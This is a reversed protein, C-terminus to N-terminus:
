QESGGPQVASVEFRPSGRHATGFAVEYDDGARERKEREASARDDFIGVFDWPERRFVGWGSIADADQAPTIAGHKGDELSSTQTM